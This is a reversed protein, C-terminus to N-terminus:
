ADDELEREMEELMRDFRCRALFGRAISQLRTAAFQRHLESRLVYGRYLAQIRVAATEDGSAPAAAGAAAAGADVGAGAGAGAGSGDGADAGDGRLGMERLLMMAYDTLHDSIHNGLTTGFVYVPGGGGEQKVEFYMNQGPKYGWRYIEALSYKELTFKDEM